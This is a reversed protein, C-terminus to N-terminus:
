VGAQQQRQSLITPPHVPKDHQDVLAPKRLESGRLGRRIEAPTSLSLIAEARTAHCLHMVAERGEPPFWGNVFRDVRAFGYVRIGMYVAKREAIDAPDGPADRIMASDHDFPRDRLAIARALRPLAAALRSVGRYDDRVWLGGGHVIEGGFSPIRCEVVFRPDPPHQPDSFWLSLSGILDYFDDVAFRRLCFTAIAEGARNEALLWFDGAGIDVHRPDFAQNLRGCGHTRRVSNYVFFDSQKHISVGIRGFQQRYKNELIVIGQKDDASLDMFNSWM